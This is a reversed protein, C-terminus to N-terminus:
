VKAAYIRMDKVSAPDFFDKDKRNLFQIANFMAKGYQGYLPLLMGMLSCVVGFPNQVCHNFNTINWLPLACRWYFWYGLARCIEDWTSNGENVVTDQEVFMVPNYKKLTEQAGVIAGLECGEMDLKLFSPELGLSDITRMEVQIEGQNDSRMETSGPSDLGSRSDFSVTENFPGLAYPMVEVNKIHNRELNRELIGRIQPQPEFAYIKKVVRSLPITLDGIYAGAEIVVSDENPTIINLIKRICVLESESFEGLLKLSRSVWPDDNVIEIEGHKFPVVSTELKNNM